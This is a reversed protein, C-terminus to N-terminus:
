SQLVKYLHYYYQKHRILEEHCGEEKVVGDNIVIIKDANKITSLRHAIVIVTRDKSINNVADQIAKESIADLDSTAEDLIIVEPNRLVARAIAIRQQQGGSLKMGREGVVTNYKQPLKEIFEHANAIRAAETIDSQSYRDLGFSINDRITSHFIFTDQSVLGIRNHWTSIIYQRLGRGDILVEGRTPSFLSLILNILTTKGSGSIGVIATLKGKEITLNIGKLVQPRDKYSFHVNRLVISHNFNAFKERGDERTKIPLNAMRYASETDPLLGAIEMYTRGFYGLSPFLRILAMGFVGMFPLVAIFNGNYIRNIALMMCLFTIVALIEMFQRPSVAWVYDKIHVSRLSSNAKDFEDNWRKGVNHVMIQKIGNIFENFIVGQQTMARVREVGFLYSIKGATWRILIIFIIGILLMLATAYVNMSFLLIIICLVKLLEDLLFPIRRLLLAVKEPAVLGQYVLHGQKQDLFFDYDAVLFQKMLNKKIDFMANGSFVSILYSNLVALNCKIITVILLLFLCGILKNSVPIYDVIGLIIASIKSGASQPSVGAMFSFIPVLAALSFAELISLLTGSIVVLFSAFKQKRLFYLISNLRDELHFKKDM